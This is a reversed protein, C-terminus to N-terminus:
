GNSDEGIRITSQIKQSRKSSRDMRDPARSPFRDAAPCEVNNELYRLCRRYGRTLPRNQLSGSNKTM